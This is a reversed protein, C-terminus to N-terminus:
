SAPLHSPQFISIFISISSSPSFQMNLLAPDSRTSQFSSFSETPRPTHISQSTFGDWNVVLLCPFKQNQKYTDHDMHAGIGGRGGIEFDM